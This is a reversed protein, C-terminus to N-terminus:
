EQEDYAPVLGSLRDAGDGNGLDADPMEAEDNDDDRPHNNSNENHIIEEPSVKKKREPSRSVSRSSERRDIKSRDKSHSRPRRKRDRSRSRSRRDWHCDGSGTRRSNSKSHHEKPNRDDERGKKQSDERSVESDGHPEGEHAM